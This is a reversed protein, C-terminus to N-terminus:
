DRATDHHMANSVTAIPLYVWFEAALYGGLKTLQPM